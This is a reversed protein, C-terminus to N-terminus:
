SHLRLLNDETLGLLSVPAKAKLSGPPDTDTTAMPGFHFSM